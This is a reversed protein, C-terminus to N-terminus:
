LPYAACAGLLQNIGPDPNKEKKKKRKRKMAYKDMDYDM